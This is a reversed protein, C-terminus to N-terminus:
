KLFEPQFPEGVAKFAGGEVVYLQLHDVGMRDTESYTVPGVVLQSDYAKDGSMRNLEAVLNERNVEKGSEKARKISEVAIEAAIIGAAYNHSNAAKDDRGYKKAFDLQWQVWPGEVSTLRYGTTWYFGEAAEGALAILDSGGTYHAGLFTLKGAEGFSKATVGLRHADKILTAVPSQVTQSLIYQVGKSQLRQLLASNDLDTGHEVVEVVELKLGAAMASKLDEVPARGFASPHIFLAVKPTGDGKHHKAVYEAVAVYQHSYSPIALFIYPSGTGEVILSKDFSAPIVPIQEETYDKALAQNAGTAYSLFLVIEEDLFEEFYRKTNATEYQDDKIPCNIQADGLLKTENVFKIYDEVGKAYPNGADSTPGTIALSLGLNYTEAAAAPASSFGLFVLALVIVSLMV